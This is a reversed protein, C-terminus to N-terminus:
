AAVLMLMCPMITRKPVMMQDLTVIPKEIATVEITSAIKTITIAIARAIKTTIVALMASMNILTKTALMAITTTNIAIITTNIAITADTAIAHITTIHM